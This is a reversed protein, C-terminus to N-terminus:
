AALAAATDPRPRFVLADRDAVAPADGRADHLLVFGGGFSGSVLWYVAPGFWGRGSSGQGRVALLPMRNTEESGDTSSFGVRIQRHALLRM